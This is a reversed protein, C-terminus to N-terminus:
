RSRMYNTAKKPDMGFAAFAGRVRDAVPRYKEDVEEEVEGKESGLVGSRKNLRQQKLRAQRDKEVISEIIKDRNALEYADLPHYGRQIRDQMEPTIWEDNGEQSQKALDPYKTFLEAWQRELEAQQEITSREQQQKEAQAVAEQAKKLLPHNDLFQEVKDPDLGAAEADERLQKRLDAFQDKERQIAKQELEDLSKLYDETSEFGALKAARQLAKEYESKREREKDLALGKQLIEDIQDESIEVEKKNFKVKRVPKPEETAPPAKEEDEQDIDQEQEKTDETKAEERPKQEIGFDKLISNVKEDLSIDKQADESHSAIQESM